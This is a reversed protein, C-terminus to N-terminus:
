LVSVHDRMTKPMETFYGVHLIPFNWEVKIESAKQWLADVVLDSEESGAHLWVLELGIDPKVTLVAFGAVNDNLRALVVCGSERGSGGYNMHALTAGITNPAFPAGSELAVRKMVPMAQMFDGLTVAVSATVDITDNPEITEVISANGSFGVPMNFNAINM